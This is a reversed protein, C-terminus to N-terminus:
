GPSRDKVDSGRKRPSSPVCPRFQRATFRLRRMRERREEAYPIFMDTTWQPTGLLAESVMRVDRFAIALGQGITPDSHGAADGVLVIGPALPTDIWRDANPYGHCPGLPRASAFMESQPLSSLRFADLFKSERDGGSFRRSQDLGYCLYLRTRNDAQPFVFFAVNGETGISQEDDPWADASEVLMGAILHHEPDTESRLGVQRAVASGRGDAGVILRAMVEHPKGDHTFSLEPPTGASVKMETIGSLLTAGGAVAADDFAQCMRPHGFTIAGRVGPVINSLALTRERAAAPTIGEGYPVSKTTYHAGAALLLDLLGLKTVEDVGWPALFEGRVIDRHVQSKELLLVSLGSRSLVTALSGGAIGAGVIVIDTDIAM